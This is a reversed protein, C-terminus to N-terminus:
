SPPAPPLETFPAFRAVFADFIALRGDSIGGESARRALRARCVDAPAVCEVFRIPVGRERAMRRAAARQEASRFSADVVVPRGSALVAGARRLVEAYVRETFALDYAGSWAPDDLRTEPAVGLMQKRTRDAEVVPAGLAGAVAAAVTSKGSAIVGGVCVLLPALVASRHAALALLFYRRAELSAARRAEAKAGEDAALMTAVKGRVYARYSEYFDVLAYLDYDGSALAYRALLREALDVRGRWALDMALFAIDSAVDAVRFRENFEICDLVTIRGSKGVYVHELRLDGHGDRVRGAAVRAEFLPARERLFRLQWAEIEAAEDRALHAAIVARTQAFNEVVNRAVAAPAGLEAARADPKSAAHFAAIRDAVADLIPGTLRGKALLVDAREADQMRKMHVAWDVVEGDGGFAFSGGKRRVVPVVGLYVDPALRANLEVEAACAEKRRDITRFDLFGLEVPKKVKYVDREGLFVLSVHTERVEVQAPRPEPFAAPLALATRM